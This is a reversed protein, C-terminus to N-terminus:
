PESRLPAMLRDGIFHDLMLMSRGKQYTAGAAM